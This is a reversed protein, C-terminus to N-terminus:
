LKGGIANLKTRDKVLDVVEVAEEKAEDIGLVDEFKVNVTEGKIAKKEGGSGRSIFFHHYLMVFVLAHVIGMLIGVPLQALMMNRYFSELAMFGIVTLVVLVILGIIVIVKIKHEMWWLHMRKKTIM